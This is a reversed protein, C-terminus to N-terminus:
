VERSDHVRVAPLELATLFGGSGSGTDLAFVSGRQYLDTPDEPTYESLSQRLGATRTHGVLVRKGAYEEFFRPENCWVLTSQPEVERPHPFGGRPDVPLGGHLYIAHEDEHWYPLQRLWAIVHEPLFSANSLAELEHAAAAEDARPIPGGVFSRLTALTGNAPSVAFNDWGEDLVRLWADEHNGRLTVVRAPVRQPLQILADVVQASAPGHDVYDGLFVLTDEPTLSPLRSLIRELAALEGHVDGFAFSRRMPETAGNADQPLAIAAEGV